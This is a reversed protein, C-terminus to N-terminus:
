LVCIGALYNEMFLLGDYERERSLGSKVLWLMLQNLIEVM